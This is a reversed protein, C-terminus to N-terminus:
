NAFSRMSRLRTHLETCTRRRWAGIKSSLPTNRVWTNQNRSCIVDERHLKYSQSGLAHVPAQGTAGATTRHGLHAEQAISPLHLTKAVAIVRGFEEPHVGAEEGCDDLVGLRVVDDEVSAAAAPAHELVALRAVHAADDADIDGVFRAFFSFRVSAVLPSRRASGKRSLWNSIAITLWTALCRTSGASVNASIDRTSFRAAPEQQERGIAPVIDRQDRPQAAGAGYTKVVPASDRVASMKGVWYRAFVAPRSRVSEFSAPISTSLRSCDSVSGSYRANWMM